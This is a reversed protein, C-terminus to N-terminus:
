QLGITSGSDFRNGASLIVYRCEDAVHDESDTDVDDLEKTCRPITPVTRIFGDHCSRVVFLGASERPGGNDPKHGNAIAVRMREWGNIRSGASKNSLTFSPGNYRKGNILLPQAMVQSISNGGHDTDNISNDAPGAEMRHWLGMKIEREIIGRAINNSLMRVGTNPIGSWGYWEGIRFLDGRVTTKREGSHTYYDSGDSEAWWGVSFPKSSGWDFSRFVRWHHPVEFDEVVNQDNAWVDDFMGGATIDWNGYLWAERKNKDTINELELVYEPSLYINEKYQSFVRVQTKTIEERQGTRPNFVEMTNKIIQGAPAPDIFKQKVWNHGVGYPNTTSFVVLPLEPLPNTLDPSHLSPVFSSRNCSMISDYLTSNPYKTLENWGIFPFEQGHYNWYDDEKKMVRFLLEEGTPWVWKYDKPSSLFVPRNSPAYIQNFWRKSKIVLDDLNKYERDFIVGRWAQGYGKGVFRRYFMLQSDTKGGGRSGEYLIHNCPCHLIAHQSGKLPKWGVRNGESDAIGM